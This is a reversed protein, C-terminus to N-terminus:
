IIRSEPKNSKRKKGKEGSTNVPLMHGEKGRQFLRETTNIILSHSPHICHVQTM